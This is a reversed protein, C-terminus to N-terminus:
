NLKAYLTLTGSAGAALSGTLSWTVAGAAGVAPHSSVSCGTIGSPNAGCSASYYTTNTPTTDSLSISGATPYVAGTESAIAASSLVNKYTLSFGLCGWPGSGALTSCDSKYQTVSKVVTIYGFYLEDHTRNTGQEPHGQQYVSIVADYAQFPVITVASSTTYQAYVTITSPSGVNGITTATYTNGSTTGAFATTCTANSYLTVNWGSPATAYATWQHGGGSLVQFTHAVCPSTSASLTTSLAVGNGNADNQPTVGRQISVLTFDNDTSSPVNGDYSGSANPTGSPGIAWSTSGAEACTAGSEIGPISLDSLYATQGAAGATAGYHTGDATLGANGGNVSTTSLSQSYMVIGGGGGGGPGHDNAAGSAQANANTGTAGNANATVSAALVDPSTLIVSGGAGGGGGGDNEPTPGSSGNSALTGNHNTTAGVRLLIVGGGVGGSSGYASGKGNSGTGNNNTGAGGGGGMWIRTSQPTM